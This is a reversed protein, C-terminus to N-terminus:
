LIGVNYVAFCVADSSFSLKDQSVVVMKISCDIVKHRWCANIEHVITYICFNPIARIRCCPTVIALVCAAKARTIKKGSKLDVLV